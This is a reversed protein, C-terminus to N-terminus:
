NLRHFYGNINKVLGRMEMYTLLALLENAALKTKDRLEEFTLRGIQLQDFVLEEDRSLKLTKIRNAVQFGFEELVDEAKTILKAGQKLLQHSGDFNRNTIEAPVVFVERNNELAFRATILSGSDIPAEIVIVGRSLGAIIRNRLPFHYPMAPAGFAFESVIGGDNELIKEILNRNPSDLALDLGAGIVAITKSKMEVAGKHSAQDVGLALGSVITVGVRGLDGAFRKALGLGYSGARRTGVIALPLEGLDLNGLLYFGLPPQNINKLSEPYVPDALTIIKAGARSVKEFEKEPDREALGIRNKSIKQWVKEFSGLKQYLDFIEEQFPKFERNIINFFM